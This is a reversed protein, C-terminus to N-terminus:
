WRELEALRARLRNEAWDLAEIYADWEKGIRNPHEKEFERKADLAKTYDTAADILDQTMGIADQLTSKILNM